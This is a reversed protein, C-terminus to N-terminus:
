RGSTPLSARFWCRRTRGRSRRCSRRRTGGDSRDRRASSAAGLAALRFAAVDRRREAPEHCRELARLPGVAETTLAAPLAAVLASSFAMTHLVDSTSSERMLTRLVSVATWPRRPNLSVRQVPLGAYAEAAAPLRSGLRVHVVSVDHRLQVAKAHELNFPAQAPAEHSPFWTTVVLIKM